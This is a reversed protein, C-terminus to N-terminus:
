SDYFQPNLGFEAVGKGKIGDLVFDGMGEHIFYENDMMFDFYNPINFQLEHNKGDASQFEFKGTEPMLPDGAFSEMLPAEHIYTLQCKDTIYGAALQGLFDYRIMSLNFVEENDLVGSLWIHRKWSKWSRNGWSHDRVSRWHIDKKVGNLSISGTLNGGQELHMKKIEKLQGFFAKNWKERAIVAGTVKPNTINKFNVLPRTGKFQLDLILDLSKEGQKIPGQYHINWVKGPDLCEYKIDGLQFGEGEIPDMDELTLEGYEPLYMRLWYENGRTTRFAQRVVFCSGDDGRGLFYSSDNFLKEEPNSHKKELELKSLSRESLSKQINRKAICQKIKRM